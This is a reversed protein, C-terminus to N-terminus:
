TGVGSSQLIMTGIGTIQLESPSINGNDPELQFFNYSTMLSIVDDANDHLPPINKVPTASIAKQGSVYFVPLFLIIVILIFLKNDKM